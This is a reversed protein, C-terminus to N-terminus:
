VVPLVAQPVEAISGLVRRPRHLALEEASFVPGAVAFAEIGATHAAEIDVPADGVYVTANRRAGVSRMFEEFMEGSPKARFGDEAGIIRAMRHSFGFHDALLRAYKGRKNTVIGQILNGDLIRLTDLAGPMMSTRDLFINDYYDRFIKIATERREPPLFGKVFDMLSIGTKRVVEEVPMRPLGLKSFMHNFADVISDLSDVLTGDMDFTVAEIRRTLLSPIESFGETRIAPIGKKACYVFLDNLAVVQDAEHAAHRDSEGDGVLIIRDYSARFRKLVSLKCTGCKGCSPNHYPHSINVRGDETMTMANAFIELGEVGHSAFLTHITADFGDSVIKVDINRARAWSLFTPFDPDLAAHKSVFEQLKAPTIRMMPGVAQYVERSGIEGIMYRKVHFRWEPDALHSRVLSNVTDKTSVTGDFDCLIM